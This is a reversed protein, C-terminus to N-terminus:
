EKVSYSLSKMTNAMQEVSRSLGELRDVRGQFQQIVDYLQFAYTDEKALCAIKYDHPWYKDYGSLKGASYLAFMRKIKNLRAVTKNYSRQLHFSFQLLRYSIEARGDKNFRALEDRDMTLYTELESELGPSKYASLGIKKEFEDLEADWDLIADNINM